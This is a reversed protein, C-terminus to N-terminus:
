DFDVTWPCFQDVLAKLNSSSPGNRSIEDAGCGGTFFLTFEPLSGPIQASYTTEPADCVLIPTNVVDETSASQINTELNQINVFETYSSELDGFSRKILVRYMNEGKGQYVECTESKAFEPVQFGGGTTKKLLFDGSTAFSASAATILFSILFKKM